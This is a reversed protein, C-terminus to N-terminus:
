YHETIKRFPQLLKYCINPLCFYITTNTFGDSTSKYISINVQLFFTAMNGNQRVKMYMRLYM